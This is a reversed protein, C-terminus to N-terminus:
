LQKGDASPKKTEPQKKSVSVLGEFNYPLDEKVHEKIYAMIKNYNEANVKDTNYFISGCLSELYFDARPTSSKTNRNYKIMSKTAQFRLHKQEEALSEQSQLLNRMCCVVSSLSYYDEEVFDERKDTLQKKITETLIAYAKDEADLPNMDPNEEAIKKIDSNYKSVLMQSQLLSFGYKRLIEQGQTFVKQITETRQEVAGTKLNSLKNDLKEELLTAISGKFLAVAQERQNYLELAKEENEASPYQSYLTNAHTYNADTKLLNLWINALEKDKFIETFIIAYVENTNTFNRYGQMKAIIDNYKDTISSAKETYADIQAYFQKDM